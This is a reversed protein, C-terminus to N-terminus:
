IANSNAHTVNGAPKIGTVLDIDYVVIYLSIILKESHPLYRFARPDWSSDSSAWGNYFPVVYIGAEFPSYPDIVNFVSFKVGTLTGNKDAENGVALLFKGIKKPYMFDSFGSVKLESLVAPPSSAFDIVYLPDVQRFTVVYGKDGLFRVSKITEGRGLDKVSGQV